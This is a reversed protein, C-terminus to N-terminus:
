PMLLLYLLGEIWDKLLLASLLILGAGVSLQMRRPAGGAILLANVIALATLLPTTVNLGM